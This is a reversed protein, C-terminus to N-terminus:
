RAQEVVIALQDCGECRAAVHTPALVELERNNFSALRKELDGTLFNERGVVDGHFETDHKGRLDYIRRLARLRHVVVEHVEVRRCLGRDTEHDYGRRDM